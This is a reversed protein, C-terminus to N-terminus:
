YHAVQAIFRITGLQMVDGNAIRKPKGPILKVGNVFTGNHSNNDVVYSALTNEDYRLTAHVRSIEPANVICFDCGADRGLTFVPKNIVIQGITSLNSAILILNPSYQTRQRIVSSGQVAANVPSAPKRLILFWEPRYKKIMGAAIIIILACGLMALPHIIALVVLLALTLVCIIAFYCIAQRRSM